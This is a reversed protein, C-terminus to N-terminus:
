SNQNVREKIGTVQSSLVSLEKCKYAYIYLNLFNNGFLSPLRYQLKSIKSFCFQLVLVLKVHDKGVQLLLKAFHIISSTLM